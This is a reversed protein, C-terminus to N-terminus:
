LSLVFNDILSGTGPRTQQLFARINAKINTMNRSVCIMASPATRKAFFCAVRIM